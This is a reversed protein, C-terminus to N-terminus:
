EVYEIIDGYEEIIDQIDGEYIRHYKNLIIKTLPNGDCILGRLATNKSVDLSTLQNKNCSLWGLATNKSVDLSTFQNSSCILSELATNNKLDLSTLQNSSCDLEKLAPNRDIFLHTLENNRCDLGKLLTFYFLEGMDTIDAESVDLWGVNLAETESIQGDNNRDVSKNLLLAQLFAPDDFRIIPSSDPLQTVTVFEEVASDFVVFRIKATREKGTFNWGVEFIADEGDEGGEGYSNNINMQIWDADCSAYWRNTSYVTIVYEEVYGEAGVTLETESVSISISHKECSVLLASMLALPLLYKKM